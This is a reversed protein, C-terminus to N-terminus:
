RLVSVRFITEFPNMPSLPFMSRLYCIYQMTAPNLNPSTPLILMRKLMYFYGQLNWDVAGKLVTVNRVQSCVKSWELKLYKSEKVLRQRPQSRLRWRWRDKAKRFSRLEAVESIVSYEYQGILRPSLWRPFSNYPRRFKEIQWGCGIKRRGWKRIKKFLCGILHTRSSYFSISHYLPTV